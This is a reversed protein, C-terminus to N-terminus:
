TTFEYFAFRHRFLGPKLGLLHRVGVGLALHQDNRGGIPSQGLVGLSGGTSPPFLAKSRLRRTTEIM